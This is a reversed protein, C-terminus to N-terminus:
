KLRAMEQYNIVQVQSRAAGMIDGQAHRAVAVAECLEAMRVRWAAAGQEEIADLVLTCCRCECEFGTGKHPGHTPVTMCKCEYETVLLTIPFELQSM